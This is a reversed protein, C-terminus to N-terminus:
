LLISQAHYMRCVSISDVNEQSKPTKKIAYMERCNLEVRTNHEDLVAPCASQRAIWSKLLEYTRTSLQNASSEASISDRNQRKPTKKIADIERCNSQLRTKQEDIVAASARVRSSNNNYYLFKCNYANTAHKIISLFSSLDVLSAGLYTSMRLPPIM